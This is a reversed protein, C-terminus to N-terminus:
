RRRVCVPKGQYETGILTGSKAAQARWARFARDESPAKMGTACISVDTLRTGPPCRCMDNRSSGTGIVRCAAAETHGNSRLCIQTKGLKPAAPQQVDQAYAAAVALAASVALMAGLIRASDLRKM